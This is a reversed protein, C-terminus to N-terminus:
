ELEIPLYFLGRSKFGKQEREPLTVMGSEVMMKGANRKYDLLGRNYKERTTKTIVSHKSHGFPYEWTMSKMAEFYHEWQDDELRLILGPLGNFKWPGHSCPIDSYWATWNRGRWTTTAKHCEHGLIELTDDHLEWEMEPLPEVYRYYNIFIKGFYETISDNLSLVMHDYDTRLKNMLGVRESTSLSNIWNNNVRIISDYQFKGYNGYYLYDQGMTLIEYNTKSENSKSDIMRHVYVIEWLATDRVVIQPGDPYPVKGSAVFIHCGTLISLLCLILKRM